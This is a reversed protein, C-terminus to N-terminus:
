GAQTGATAAPLAWNGLQGIAWKGLCKPAQNPPDCCQHAAIEPVGDARNVQWDVGSEVRTGNREPGRVTRGWGWASWPASRAM